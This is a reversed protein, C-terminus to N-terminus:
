VGIERKAAEPSDSGHIVDINIDFSLRKRIEPVLSRFGQIIGIGEWVMVLIPGSTMYELLNPYFSKGKHEKYHEEIQERTARVLKIEIPTTWHELEHIIESILHRRIADPKIIILTQEMM